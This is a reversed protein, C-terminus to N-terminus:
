IPASATRRMTPEQRHINAAAPSVSKRTQGVASPWLIQRLGVALAPTFKGAGRANLHFNDSFDSSPLGGPAIPSLIKVENAAAAQLVAEAGLNLRAPPLVVVLEASHQACLDQLQSLRQSAMNTLDEAKAAVAIPRLLHHLGPLYKGLLWSRIETRTGYFASFNALVLSSIENHDAAIDRSFALLDGHDVLLHASYDGDFSASTLQTPNLMVVVVDPNAGMRFLRRLGYYWDLYSTNEVVMRRLEIEPGVEQQLQPFNVGELLL